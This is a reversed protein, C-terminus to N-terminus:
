LVAKELRGLAFVGLLLCSDVMGDVLFSAASNM